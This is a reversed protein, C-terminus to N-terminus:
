GMEPKWLIDDIDNGGSKNQKEVEKILKATLGGLSSSKKLDSFSM